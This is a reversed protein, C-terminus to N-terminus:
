PLNNEWNDNPEWTQTRADWYFGDGLLEREGTYRETIPDIPHTWATEDEFVKVPSSSRRKRRQRAPKKLPRTHSKSFLLKSATTPSVPPKDGLRPPPFSPLMGPKIHPEPSQSPRQHSQWYKFEVLPGPPQYPTHGPIDSPPLPWHEVTGQDYRDWDFHFKGRPRIEDNIDHLRPGDLAWTQMPFAPKGLAAIPSIDRERVLRPRKGDLGEYTGEEEERARKLFRATIPSPAAPQAPACKKPPPSDPIIIPNDTSEGAPAPSSDSESVDDPKYEWDVDNEFVTM